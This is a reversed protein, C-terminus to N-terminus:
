QIVFDSGIAWTGIGSGSPPTIGGGDRIEKLVSLIENLTAETAIEKQRVVENEGENEVYLGTGPILYKEDFGFNDIAQSTRKTKSLNESM